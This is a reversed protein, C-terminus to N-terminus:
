LLRNPDDVGRTINHDDFGRIVIATMRGRRNMM